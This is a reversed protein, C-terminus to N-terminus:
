RLLADYITRYAVDYAENSCLIDPGNCGCAAPPVPLDGLSIFGSHGAKAEAAAIAARYEAAQVPDRKFRGWGVLQCLKTKLGRGRYPGYGFWRANVDGRRVKAQKAQTYLAALRPEMHVLQAWTIRGEQASPASTTDNVQLTIM